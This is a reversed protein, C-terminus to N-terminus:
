QKRAGFGGIVAAFGADAAPNAASPTLVKPSGHQAGFTGVISSPHVHQDTVGPGDGLLQFGWEGTWNVGSAAGSTAGAATPFGGNTATPATAGLSVMWDVEDDDPIGDGSRNFDKIVGSITGLAENTEFDATLEATATFTGSVAADSGIHREAFFGAASGKYKAKGELGTVNGALYLDNGQGVAASLGTGVQSDPKDLWAGYIMYDSDVVTVTGSPTFLWSTGATATVQGNTLNLAFTGEGNATYTGPTGAFSGSFQANAAITTTQQAASPTLPGPDIDVIANTTVNIATQLETGAGGIVANTVAYRTAQSAEHFGANGLTSSLGSPVNNGAFVDQRSSKIDTMLYVHRTRGGAVDVETMGATMGDAGATAEFDFLIMTATTDTDDTSATGKLMTKSGTRTAKVSAWSENGDVVGMVNEGSTATSFRDGPPNSGQFGAVTRTMSLSGEAEGPDTTDGDSNLDVTVIPLDDASKQIAAADVRARQAAEADTEGKLKDEAAKQAAKAAAADAEAKEQAAKAAAADAEAKEQAAMAAAADAEAKEQAAMAAAADAEAKEQAAMATMKAAEAMEQAEKAAMEAAEAKEQAAMAAAAAEKATAAESEALKQAAEAAFKDLNAANAEDEAMKQAAMADAAAKDATAQAAVAADRLAEAAGQAAVAADRLGEALKQDAEAKAQAEKATKEAAMAADAAAKATAQAAKAADREDEAQKLQTQLQEHVSQSVGGNDDGGCGQLVMALMAVAAIMGSMRGLKRLNM